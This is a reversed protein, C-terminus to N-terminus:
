HSRIEVAKNRYFFYGIKIGFYNESRYYSSAWMQSGTPTFFIYRNQLHERYIFNYDFVLALHKYIFTIRPYFGVRANNVNDIFTYLMGQTGGITATTLVTNENKAWYSGLGLGVFVSLKNVSFYSSGKTLLYQRCITISNCKELSPRDFSELRLSLSSSRKKSWLSPEVSRVSFVNSLDSNGIGGFFMFKRLEQSSGKQWTCALVVFTIGSFIKKLM